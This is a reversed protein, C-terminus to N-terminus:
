VIGVNIARFGVGELMGMRMCVFLEDQFLIEGFLSFEVFRGIICVNRGTDDVLAPREGSSTILVDRVIRVMPLYRVVRVVRTGLVQVTSRLRVVVVLGHLVRVVGRHVIVLRVIVIQSGICGNMRWWLNSSKSVRRDVLRWEVCMSGLQVTERHHLDAILHARVDIRRRRHGAGPLIRNDNCILTIELPCERLRAGHSFVVLVRVYEDFFALDNRNKAWGFLISGFECDVIPIQVYIYWVLERLWRRHVRM